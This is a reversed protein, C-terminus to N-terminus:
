RVWTPIRSSQMRDARTMLADTSGPMLLSAPCTKPTWTSLRRGNPCTADQEVSMELEDAMLIMVMLQLTHHMTAVTWPSHM